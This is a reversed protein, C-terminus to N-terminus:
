STPMASCCQDGERGAQGALSQLGDHRDVRSEQLAGVVLQDVVDGDLVQRDDEGQIPGPQDSRVACRVRAIEVNGERTANGVHRHQCWRIFIFTPLRQVRRELM